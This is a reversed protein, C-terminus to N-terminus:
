VKGRVENQGSSKVRCPSGPDAFPPGVLRRHRGLKLNNPEATVVTKRAWVRSGLGQVATLNVFGARCPKTEVVRRVLVQLNRLGLVVFDSAGSGINDAGSHDAMKPLFWVTM